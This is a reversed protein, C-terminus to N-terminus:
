GTACWGTDGQRISQPFGMCGGDGVLYALMSSLLPRTLAGATDYVLDAAMADRDVEDVTVNHTKSMSM